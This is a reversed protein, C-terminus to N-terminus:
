KVVEVRKGVLRVDIGKRLTNHVEAVSDTHELLEMVQQETAGRAKIRARYIINRAPEGASGFEDGVEIEASVVEIGRAAAERYLDNCCCTALALFLLEGGNAKSGAGGAKAPIDIPHVNENTSLSVDNRGGENNIRALIKM